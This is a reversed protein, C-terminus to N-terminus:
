WSLDLFSHNKTSYDQKGLLFDIQDVGDILRDNPLKAGIVKESTSIFDMAHFM